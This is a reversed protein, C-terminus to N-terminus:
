ATSSGQAGTARRPKLHHLLSLLNTTQAASPVTPSPQSGYDSFNETIATSISHGKVTENITLQLRRVLNGQDIWVDIPVGSTKVHSQLESVMQEAARRDSAPVASPLKSIDITAQYHTTQVGDITTQGLNKVSGSSAARLFDLYEGPDNLTSSQNMMSGLAPIHAANGLQKLNLSLWPKNGPLKSTLSPPLKMYITANALVMQMQLTQTGSTSPLQMNMTMSGERTKASFAGNADISVTKGSITARSTMNM